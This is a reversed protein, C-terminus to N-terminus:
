LCVFDKVLKNTPFDFTTTPNGVYYAITNAVSEFLGSGSVLTQVKKLPEAPYFRNAIYVFNENLEDNVYEGTILKKKASQDSLVNIMDKTIM